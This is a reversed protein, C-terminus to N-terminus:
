RRKSPIQAKSRYPRTDSQMVHYAAGSYPGAPWCRANAARCGENCTIRVVTVACKGITVGPTIFFQSAIWAEDGVVMPFSRITFAVNIRDHDGRM